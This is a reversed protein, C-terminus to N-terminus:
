RSEAQDVSLSVLEAQRYKISVEFEAEPAVNSLKIPANLMAREQALCNLLVSFLQGKNATLTAAENCFKLVQKAPYGLDANQGKAIEM